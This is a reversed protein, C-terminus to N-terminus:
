PLKVTDYSRFSLLKTESEALPSFKVVMRRINRNEPNCSGKMRVETIPSSGGEKRAEIRDMSTLWRIVHCVM